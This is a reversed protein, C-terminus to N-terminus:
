PLCVGNKGGSSPVADGFILNDYGAMVRIPMAMFHDSDPFLKEAYAPSQREANTFSLHRLIASFALRLARSYRGQHFEGLGGVEQDLDGLV